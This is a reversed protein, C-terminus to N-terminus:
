IDEPTAAADADAMHAEAKLCWFRHLPWADLQCQKSCYVVRRCRSCKLFQRDFSENKHCHARDTEAPSLNGCIRLHPEPYEHTSPRSTPLQILSSPAPSTPTTPLSCIDLGTHGSTPTGRRFANRMCLVAWHRIEPYFAPLTYKQTRAFTCHEHLVVRLNSYKSLYATMKLAPLLTPHPIMYEISSPQPPPPPLSAPAQSWVNAPGQDSSPPPAAAQVTPTSTVFAPDADPLFHGHLECQIPGTGGLIVSLVKIVGAEVLRKRLRQNTRIAINSLACVGATVCMEWRRRDKTESTAMRALGKMVARVILEVGGDSCLIVAIRGNATMHMIQLLSHSLPLPDTCTLARKDYCPATLAISATPTVPAVSSLGYFNNQRVM